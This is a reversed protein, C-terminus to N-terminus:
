SLDKGDSFLGFEDDDDDEFSDDNLKAVRKAVKGNVPFTVSVCELKDDWYIHACKSDEETMDYITNYMCCNLYYKAFEPDDELDKEGGRNLYFQMQGATIYFGLEDCHLPERFTFDMM